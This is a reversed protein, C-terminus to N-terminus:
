IYRMIGYILYGFIEHNIKDWYYFSEYDPLLLYDLQYRREGSHKNTTYPTVNLDTKKFCALARRMHVASTILLFKGDSFNKDIIEKTYIANERTNNSLSDILIDKEPINIQLLYRKLLPAEAVNPYALCGIGGTLIIKKIKKQKYLQITQLFRDTNHSFILKNTKNDVNVMGGGLLIGADYEDKVEETIPMEWLRMVEDALFRNSFLYFFLVSLILFLKSKKKSKLFILSLLLLIFIWFVPSYLFSLIKSIIFFM